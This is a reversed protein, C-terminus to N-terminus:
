SNHETNDQTATSNQDTEVLTLAKQFNNHLRKIYDRGIMVRTKIEKSRFPNKQVKYRIVRLQEPIDDYVMNTKLSLIKQEIEAEEIGLVECKTKVREIEEQMMREPMNVLVHCVEGEDLKLIDLYGTMQWSNDKECPENVLSLFSPMDYSVKIEKVLVAKKKNETDWVIIDPIGKLYANHVSKENKKYEVGDIRSLLAIADDEALSGKDMTLPRNGGANVKSRGYIEYAYIKALQKKITETLKNPDYAIQSQVVDRIIYKQRESLKEKDKAVYNFFDKWEKETPPMNGQANAVLVGLDSCNIKIRGITM